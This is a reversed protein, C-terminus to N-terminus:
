RRGGLTNECQKPYKGGHDLLRRVASQNSYGCVECILNCRATYAWKCDGTAKPKKIITIQKMKDEGLKNLDDGAQQYKRLIEIAADLAKIDDQWLQDNDHQAQYEANQRLDILQYIIDDIDM